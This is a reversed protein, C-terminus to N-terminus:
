GAREAGGAADPDLATVALTRIIDCCAGCIGFRANRRYLAHFPLADLPAPMDLLTLYGSELEGRVIVPPILAIGLGARLNAIVGHLTDLWFTKPPRLGARELQSEVAQAPITGVPYALLPVRGLIDLGTAGHAAVLDTRCIWRVPLDFLHQSSLNPKAEGGVMIGMDIRGEQLRDLVDMSSHTFFEFSLQPYRESAALLFGPQFLSAVYDTWALRFVGQAGDQGGAAHVLDEASALLKRALPLAAHGHETLVLTSGDRFFLPVGLEEELRAVRSAITAQTSFLSEAARAFSGLEATAIFSSVFRLNM